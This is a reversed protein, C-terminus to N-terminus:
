DEKQLERAPRRSPARYIVGGGDGTALAAQLASATFAMTFLDCRGSDLCLQITPDGLRILKTLGDTITAHAMGPTGDVVDGGVCLHLQLRVTSCGAVINDHDINKPSLKLPLLTNRATWVM